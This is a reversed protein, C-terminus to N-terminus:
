LCIGIYVTCKRIEFLLCFLYRKFYYSFCKRYIKGSKLSKPSPPTSTFPPPEQAWFQEGWWRNIGPPKNWLGCVLVNWWEQYSSIPTPTIPLQFSTEEKTRKKSPDVFLLTKWKKWCIWNMLILFLSEM